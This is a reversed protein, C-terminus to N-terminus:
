PKTPKLMGTRFLDKEATRRKKLGDLIVGGGGVFGKTTGFAERQFTKFDGNNLAALAKSDRVSGYKVNFLLSILSSRQNETLDVTVLADVKREAEVLDERLFQDAQEQTIEEGFNVRKTSGYGVTVLGNKKEEETAYYGKNRYGEFNKVFETLNTEVPKEPFRDTKANEFAMEAEVSMMGM